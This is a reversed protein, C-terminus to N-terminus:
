SKKTVNEHNTEHKKQKMHKLRKKKLITTEHIKHTKKQIITYKNEIVHIM